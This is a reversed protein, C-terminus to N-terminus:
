FKTSPSFPTQNESPSFLRSRRLINARSDVDFNADIRDVRM